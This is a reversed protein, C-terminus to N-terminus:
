STTQMVFAQPDAVTLTLEGTVTEATEVFDVQGSCQHECDYM